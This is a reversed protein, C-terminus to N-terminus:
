LLAGRLIVAAASFYIVLGTVDVLTAVFPASATAPDFGARKLVLPLMSGSLTGWMVVGILTIWITVGILFWHPGYSDSFQSWVVIRLFGLLGLINGLAFGSVLERKMVLWWRRLDLEGLAIARIILSAAQSGSNGGSSIILPIFLALVVAKSLEHEFFGMATATLLEGLFLVVLWGARKKLMEPMPTSLYPLDLAEMGGLKHIDETAEEEAVDLVDDVTIIGILTGETDTVPLATRDYKRFSTIATEQDDTAKLSIYQGDMLSAVTSDLPAVLFDRTRIDDVLRGKEDVVYLVNLTESSRGHTRIHEFVKTVTWDKNISLYDPTMRRGISHEPYGLLTKAVRLEDPKLLTLLQRTANAPLEELLLTRDDPSMDNLIQAVTEQALGFLLQEQAELPLYEFTSAALQRPVLRFVLAKQDGPLDGILDALDPAPIEALFPKLDAFEGAAIMEKLDPGLLHGLM